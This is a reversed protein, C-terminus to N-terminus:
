GRKMKPRMQCVKERSGLMSTVGIKNMRMGGGLKLRTNIQKCLLMGWCAFVPVYVGQCACVSMCVCLCVSVCVALPQGFGFVRVKPEGEGFVWGVGVFIGVCWLHLRSTTIM